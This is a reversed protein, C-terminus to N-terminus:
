EHQTTRLLLEGGDSGGGGFLGGASATSKSALPKIIICYRQVLPASQIMATYETIMSM